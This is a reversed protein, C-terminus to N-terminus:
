LYRGNVSGRLETVHGQMESVVTSQETLVQLMIKQNAGMDDMYSTIHNIKKENV